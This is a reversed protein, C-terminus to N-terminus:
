DIVRALKWRGSAFRWVFAIGRVVWDAVMAVWIGMLGFGAYVLVYSLAVRMTWMSIMSVTMTFRADGAARLANPMSFSPPWFILASACFFRLVDVAIVQTADTVGYIGILSPALAFMAVSLCGVGLYIVGFLRLIYYRAQNYDRAGVCQGVVTVMALGVAAGPMNVFSGLNNCVANATTATLGLGAVLSAVLLKGIQFMGNEVGTPIGVKLISRLLNGQIRVRWLGAICLVNDRRCLLAVILVAAVARAVLSATAAGAVGMGAGYILLANGSINILNMLLAVYLSIRSNGMSRFLAAGANYLGLFPYSLASLWFYTESNRMVEESVAGFILSLLHRNTLLTIVAMLSSLILTAYLLQKAAASANERDKRGLYQSAVVAGGTALAAFVQVLLVNIQDVLSVASVAAEGVSAVMMSDAMGVSVALLQEFILPVILRVLARRTFLPNEPKTGLKM